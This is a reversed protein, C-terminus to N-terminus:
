PTGPVIPTGIIHSKPEEEPTAKESETPVTQPEIPAAIEVKTTEGSQNQNPSVETEGATNKQSGTELMKKENKDGVTQNTLRMSHPTLYSTLVDQRTLDFSYRMGDALNDKANLTFALSESNIVVDEVNYVAEFDECSWLNNIRVWKLIKPKGDVNLTTVVRNGDGSMGIGILTMKPFELGPGAARAEGSEDFIKRSEIDAAIKSMIKNGFIFGATMQWDEDAIVLRSEATTLTEQYGPKYKNIWTYSALDRFLAKTVDIEKQVKSIGAVDKIDYLSLNIGFYDVGATILTALVIFVFLTGIVNKFFRQYVNKM